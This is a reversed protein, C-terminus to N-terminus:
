SRTSKRRGISNEKFKARIPLLGEHRRGNVRRALRILKLAVAFRRSNVANLKLSANGADGSGRFEDLVVRDPALPM